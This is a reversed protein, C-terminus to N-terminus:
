PSPTSGAERRGVLDALRAEGEQWSPEFGRYDKRHLYRHCSRCLPGLPLDGDGAIVRPRYDGHHVDRAPRGCGACLDGVRDMVRRRQAERTPKLRYAEYAAKGGFAQRDTSFPLLFADPEQRRREHKWIFSAITRAM